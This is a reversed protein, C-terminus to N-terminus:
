ASLLHSHNTLINSKAVEVERCQGLFEILVRVRERAPLLQTVVTSLGKFTGGTITVTDGERIEQDLVRCDNDGIQQRLDVITEEPIMALKEGFRVIASVGRAYTVQKHMDMPVFRAFIYSPFLAETFWVQGRRTLKRFRMRPAYVEVNELQRLHSAAIHESKPQTRVCFWALENFLKDM